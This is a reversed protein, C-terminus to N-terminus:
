RTPMYIPGGKVYSGGGGGYNMNPAAFAYNNKAGEFTSTISSQTQYKINDISSRAAYEDKNMMIFPILVLCLTSLSFIEKTLLRFIYGM